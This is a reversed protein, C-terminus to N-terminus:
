LWVIQFLDRCNKLSLASHTITSIHRSCRKHQLQDDLPIHNMGLESRKGKPDTLVFTLPSSEVRSKKTGDHLFKNEEASSGTQGAEASMRSRIQSAVKFGSHFMSAKKEKHKGGRNTESRLRATNKSERTLNIYRKSHVLLHDHVNGCRIIM